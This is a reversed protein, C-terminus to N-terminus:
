PIIHRSNTYSFLVKKTENQQSYLFFLFLVYSLTKFQSFRRPMILTRTTPSVNVAARVHAALPPLSPSCAAISATAIQQMSTSSSTKMMRIM